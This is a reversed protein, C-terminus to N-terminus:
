EELLTEALAMTRDTLAETTTSTGRLRDNITSFLREFAVGDGASRRWDDTSRPELACTGCARTGSGSESAAAGELPEFCGHCRDLGTVVTEGLEVVERLDSQLTTATETVTELPTAVEPGLDTTEVAGLRDLRTDVVDIALLVDRRTEVYEAAYDRSEDGPETEALATPLSTVLSAFSAVDSITAGQTRTTERVLRFLEDRDVSLNSLADSEQLATFCRECVTVLSSEHATGELSVDGVPYTRVTTPEDDGGIAGCNRCAYEDREFVVRRDDRRERSTM